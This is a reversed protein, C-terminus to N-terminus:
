FNILPRDRRPIDIQNAANPESPVISNVGVLALKFVFPTAGSGNFVLAKCQITLNRWNNTNAAFIYGSVWGTHADIKLDTVALIGGDLLLISHNADAREDDVDLLFASNDPEIGNTLKKDKEDWVPAYNLNSPILFFGIEGMAIAFIETTSSENWPFVWTSCGIDITKPFNESFTPMEPVVKLGWYQPPGALRTMSNYRTPMQPKDFKYKM